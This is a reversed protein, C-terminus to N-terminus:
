KIKFLAIQGGNQITGGDQFVAFTIKDSSNSKITRDTAMLEIYPNKYLMNQFKTFKATLTKNPTSDYTHINLDMVIYKFGISKFVDIIEEKTSYKESIRAFLDLFTDEFVRKDNKDIFFNIPTGVRYINASKDNNIIQAIQNINPFHYNILKDKSLNGLQYEMISPYYIHKASEESIPKYNSARQAFALFLWIGTASLIATKKIINQINHTKHSPIIKKCSNSIGTFLFILSIPFILMGYWPVGSGLIWWQFFYLLVILIITKTLKTHRKIRSNFLTLIILFLVILLSYIYPNKETHHASLWTEIPIYTELFVKNTLHSVQELFNLTESSDLIAIAQLPDTLKNYNLFASPIAVILLAVSLSMYVLSTLNLKQSDNNNSRFLFIFPFLLILIFGIDNFNKSLNPKIFIDYPLSFYRIPLVEYGMFRHLDENVSTNSLKNNNEFNFKKTEESQNIKSFDKSDLNRWSNLKITPTDKQGNILSHISHQGTEVYNKGLWPLVSLLFFVGLISSYIVLQKLKNKNRIYTYVLLCIGIVLLTKQLIPVLDHFRRLGPTNDLRLIFIAAFSLFFSTFFSLVGGKYYWIACNLTLFLILTTIKIGFTFGLLLGIVVLTSNQKLLTPTWKNLYTNATKLGIGIIPSKKNITKNKDLWNYFFLLIALTFFLLGMEVKMDMYSLFNIMPFSYFILVVLISYNIDLWKRSLKFLTFLALVGGTFSLALVIDIRGFIILGTSIFLSWNYPQNGSVLTQYDNLLSPLNIYLNLSDTGMPFPRLILTYNIVLFVSLFLLSLIGILNINPSIPIPTILVEKIVKLTFRWYVLLIILCVPLLFYINLLGCIGLLFLFSTFIMIGIAVQICAQDMTPIHIRTINTFLIGLVRAILYVFFICCSVGIFHGAHTFLSSTKLDLGNLKGYFISIIILNLVLLSSFISLGNIYKFINNKRKTLIWYITLGLVFFITLLDYYQFLRLSQSYSKDYQWFESFIIISWAIAFIM